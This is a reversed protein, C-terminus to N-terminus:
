QGCPNGCPCISSTVGASFGPGCNPAPTCTTSLAFTESICGPSFTLFDTLAIHWEAPTVSTDWRYGDIAAVELGNCDTACSKLGIIISAGNDFTHWQNDNIQVGNLLASNVQTSVIRIRFLCCPNDAHAALSTILLLAAGLIISKIKGM